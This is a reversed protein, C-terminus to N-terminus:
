DIQKSLGAEATDWFDVANGQFNNYEAIYYAAIEVMKYREETSIKRKKATSTKKCCTKKACIKLEHSERPLQKKLLRNQQPNKKHPQWSHYREKQLAFAPLSM